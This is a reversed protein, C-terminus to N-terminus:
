TPELSSEWFRHFSDVSREIPEQLSEDLRKEGYNALSRREKM